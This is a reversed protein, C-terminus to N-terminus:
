HTIDMGNSVRVVTTLYNANQIQYTFPQDVGDIGFGEAHLAVAADWVTKDLDDTTKDNAGGAMVLWVEYTATLTNFTDEDRREFGSFLAMAAPPVLRGPVHNHKEGVSAPLTALITDREDTIPGTM